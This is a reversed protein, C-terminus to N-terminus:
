HEQRPFKMSPPAQHAMTQLTESLWVHSLVVDDKNDSAWVCLRKPAWNEMWENFVFIPIYINKHALLTQPGM